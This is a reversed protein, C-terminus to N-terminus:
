AEFARLGGDCTSVFVKGDAVSPLATSAALDTRWGLAGTALDVAYLTSGREDFGVSYAAGDAIVAGYSHYRASDAFTWAVERHGLHVGTLTYSWQPRDSAVDAPATRCTAGVLWDGSVAVTGGWERDTRMSWVTEGTEMDLVSLAGHPVVLRDGAVVPRGAAGPLRVQWRTSGTSVDFASVECEDSYDDDSTVFVRGGAVAPANRRGDHGPLHREWKVRPPSAALDIAHLRDGVVFATDSEIVVTSDATGLYGASLGHWSRADELEISWLPERTATCGYLALEKAGGAYWVTDGSVAPAARGFGPRVPETHWRREGTRTDFAGLADDVVTYLTSHAVTVVPAIPGGGTLEWVSTPSAAIEPNPPLEPRDAASDLFRRIRELYTANTMGAQPNRYSHRGSNVWGFVPDPSWDFGTIIETLREALEAAGAATVMGTSAWARSLAERAQAAERPSTTWSVPAFLPVLFEEPFPEAALTKWHRRLGAAIDFVEAWRLIPLKFHPDDYGLGLSTGDPTRLGHYIGPSSSFRITWTYEAPLPIELVSGAAMAEEMAEDEADDDMDDTIVDYPDPGYLAVYDFGSDDGLIRALVADASEEDDWAIRSGYYSRWFGPNRLASAWDEIRM